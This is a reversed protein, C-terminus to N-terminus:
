DLTRVMAGGQGPNRGMLDQSPWPWGGAARGLSSPKCRRHRHPTCLLSLSEALGLLLFHHAVAGWWRRVQHTIGVDTRLGM